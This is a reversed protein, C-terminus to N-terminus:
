QQDCVPRKTKTDDGIPGVGVKVGKVPSNAGDLLEGVVTGVEGEWGRQWRM